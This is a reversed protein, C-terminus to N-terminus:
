KRAPEPMRNGLLEEYRAIVRDPPGDEVVRGAHLLM